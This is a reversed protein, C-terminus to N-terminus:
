VTRWRLRFAKDSQQLAGRLLLIVFSHPFCRLLEERVGCVTLRPCNLHKRIARIALWRLRNIDGRFDM